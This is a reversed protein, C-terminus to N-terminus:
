IFNDLDHRFLTSGNHLLSKKESASFRIIREYRQIERELRHVKSQEFRTIDMPRILFKM